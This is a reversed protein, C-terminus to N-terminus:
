ISASPADHLSDIQENIWNYTIPNYNQLLYPKDARRKKVRRPIPASPQFSRKANPLGGSKELHKKLYLLAGVQHKCIGGWDYPCTCDSTIHDLFNNITVTYFRTGMIRFTAVNNEVDISPTGFRDLTKAISKGKTKVKDYANRNIYEEIKNLVKRM